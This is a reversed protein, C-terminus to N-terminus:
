PFIANRIFLSSRSFNLYFLTNSLFFYTDLLLRIKRHKGRDSLVLPPSLGLPGGPGAITCIFMWQYICDKANLMFKQILFLFPIAFKVKNM